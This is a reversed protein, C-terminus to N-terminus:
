VKKSYNTLIEVNNNMILVTDEIRIGFKGQYYIGPEITFVMGNEIKQNSKFSIGFGEHIELGLSHGTAHPLDPYNLKSLEQRVYRDLDAFNGGIKIKSLTNKQINLLDQYTKKVKDGVNKMLFTRSIDSTYNKYSVGLDVLIVSVDKIIKNGNKNNYHPLASNSSVAVIPDFSKELNNKRIWNLIENYIDREHAGIKILSKAYSMCLDTKEAATKMLNIEDKNKIKRLKSVPNSLPHLRSQAINKKLYDYIDFSLHHSEFAINDLNEKKILDKIIELFSKKVTQIKLTIGPANKAHEKAEEIYRSDTILYINKQTILLKSEIEHPSITQFGSLYLVNYYDTILIGDLNEKVIISRINEIRKLFNMM